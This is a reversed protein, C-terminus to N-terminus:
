KQIRDKEFSTVNTIYLIYLTSTVDLKNYQYAYSVHHWYIYIIKYTYM